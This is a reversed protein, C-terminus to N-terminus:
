KTWRLLGDSRHADDKGMVGGTNGHLCQRGLVM